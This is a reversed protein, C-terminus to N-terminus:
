QIISPSLCVGHLHWPLGSSNGGVSLMHWGAFAAKTGGVRRSSGDLAQQAPPAIAALGDWGDPVSFDQLVANDDAGLQDFVFFGPNQGMLVSADRMPMAATLSAPSGFVTEGAHKLGAMFIGHRDVFQKETKWLETAPWGTALGSIMVPRRGLYLRDFDDASLCDSGSAKSKKPKSKRDRPSRGLPCAVRRDITCPNGAAIRLLEDEAAAAAEPQQEKQEQQEQEQQPPPGPPSAVAAAASALAVMCGKPDDADFCGSIEPEAVTGITELHAALQSLKLANLGSLAAADDDTKM